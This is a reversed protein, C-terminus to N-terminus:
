IANNQKMKLYSILAQFSKDIFTDLFGVCVKLHDLAEKNNNEYSIYLFRHDLIDKYEIKLSQFISKEHVVENRFNYIFYWIPNDHNTTYRNFNNKLATPLGPHKYISGLSVKYNDIKLDLVANLLHLFMDISSRITILFNELEFYTPMLTLLDNKKSSINISTNINNYHYLTKELKFFLNEFLPSINDDSKKANLLALLNRQHSILDTKYLHDGGKRVLYLIVNIKIFFM